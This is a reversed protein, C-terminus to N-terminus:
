WVRTVGASEFDVSFKYFQTRCRGFESGDTYGGVGSASLMGFEALPRDIEFQWSVVNSGSLPGITGDTTISGSLTDPQGTQLDIQDVPYNLLQYTIDQGCAVSALFFLVSVIGFVSRKM